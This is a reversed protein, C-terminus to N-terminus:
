KLWERRSRAVELHTRSMLDERTRSGHGHKGIARFCNPMTTTQVCGIVFAESYVRAVGSGLFLRGLWENTCNTFYRRKIGRCVIDTHSQVHMQADISRGADFKVNVADFLSWGISFHDYM